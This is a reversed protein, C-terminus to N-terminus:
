STLPASRLLLVFRAADHMHTDTDTHTHTRMKQSSCKCAFGVGAAGGTIVVGRTSMALFSSGSRAGATPMKQTRPALLSSQPSFASALALLAALMEAPIEAFHPRKELKDEGTFLLM